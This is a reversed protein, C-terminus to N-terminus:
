ESSKKDLTKFFEAKLRYYDKSAQSTADATFYAHPQKGYTQQNPIFLTSPVGLATLRKHYDQAQDGFSGYNGETLLTPPFNATILSILNNKAVFDDDLAIQSQQTYSALSQGYIYNYLAVSQVTRSTRSPDLAPAELVLAKIQSKSLVPELDLTKAHDPNLQATIFNGVLNAGASSGAFILQDTSIGLEEQHEQLYALAQSAQIVPVPNKYDPALAYNISVLNYGMDLIQKFYILEGNEKGKANPDGSMKDGAIFGGGHFFVYTPRKNSDAGKHRIIDLFSRPYETAYAIDKQHDFQDGFDLTLESNPEFSNTTPINAQYYKLFLTPDVAQYSITVLLLSILGCVGTKLWTLYNKKTSLSMIVLASLIITAVQGVFWIWPTPFILYISMLGASIISLYFFRNKSSRHLWALGILAVILLITLVISDKFLISRALVLSISVLAALLNVFRSM